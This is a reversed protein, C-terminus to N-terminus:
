VKSVTNSDIDLWRGFLPLRFLFRPYFLAIFFFDGFGWGESSCICCARARNTLNTPFGVKIM